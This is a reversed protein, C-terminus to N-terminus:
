LNAFNDFIEGLMPACADQRYSPENVHTANETSKRNQNNQM